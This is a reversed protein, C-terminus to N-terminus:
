LSKLVVEMQVIFSSFVEIRELWQVSFPFTMVTFFTQALHTFPLLIFSVLTWVPTLLLVIGNLLKSFPWWIIYLSVLLIGRWNAM